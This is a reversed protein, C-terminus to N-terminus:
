IRRGGMVASLIVCSLLVYSASLVIVSYLVMIVYMDKDFFPTLLKLM